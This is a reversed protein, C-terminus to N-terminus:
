FPPGPDPAHSPRFAPVRREARVVYRRGTPSIWEIDGGDLQRIQWGAHHKVTHHGQCLPGLNWVSTTGGDKWAISHDIQCRSAPMGCGPAMCRDARWKVLKALEAPPQYRERGVSLVMGSEPHTLVRTWGGSSGCLQRAVSLPVPGIGEVTAADSGAPVADGGALLALAPVTVVVTARIGRAAEGHDPSWGDILVDCMADARVQDLTRVDESDAIVKAVRTLRDYAAYLEVAPAYAHLWAMGDDATELVVRRDIVARTHRESLSSERMAEVLRDLRRRFSGVPLERALELGRDLLFKRHEPAITNLRDVLIRAHAETAEASSLARLIAPYRGVVSTSLAIMEGAAYETIRLASALELRVSREIIENSAAPIESRRDRDRAEALVMAVGILRQASLAGIADSVELVRDITDPHPDDGDFAGGSEVHLEDDRASGSTM